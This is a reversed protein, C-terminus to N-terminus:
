RKELSLLADIKQRVNIMSWRWLTPILAFPGSSDEGVEGETNRLCNIQQTHFTFVFTPAHYAGGDVGRAGKLEVETSGDRIDLDLTVKEKTREIISANVAM